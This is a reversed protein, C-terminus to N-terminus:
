HHRRDGAANAQFQQSIITLLETATAAEPLQKVRLIVGAERAAHLKELEKPTVYGPAMAGVVIGKAGAAQFAEIAAGDSGAYSMSIDVRPLDDLGRVDFETDPARRREPM